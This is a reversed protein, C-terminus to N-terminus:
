FHATVGVYAGSLNIKAKYESVDNGLIDNEEFAMTFQKYGAEVGVQLLLDTPLSFLYRGGLQWDVIGNGSIMLGSAEGGVELGTGPVGVGVALYPLPLILSIDKAEEGADSNSVTFSGDVIKANVGFKIDVLPLPLGFAGIFDYHSLDLDITTDALAAYDSLNVGAFELESFGSVEATNINASVALRQYRIKADPIFPLPQDIAVWAYANTGTSFGLDDNLNYKETDMLYSDDSIGTFWAGAGADLDLLLKANASASVAAITAAILLKKM